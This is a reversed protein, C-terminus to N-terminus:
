AGTRNRAQWLREWELAHRVIAELSDHRPQWDLVRRLRAPDAIVSGLDGPRRPRDAVSFETESVRRVMELVERVSYGRGYGCNLCQNSGGAEMYELALRHVQALDSVHIFDRVGTGDPTPWDTGFVRMEDRLGLAAEVAAKILHTAEPTAQGSRGAPDAGAVNFYRLIFYSLGHAAAADAIMEETMWKSRGYPSAPGLPSDEDIPVGDAARYVAATSSFILASVGEAVMAEILALSAITNNGYYKLPLDVSEPVVTSGACHIVATVGHRRLLERMAAGDGIDVHEFVAPRPILARRGTALNDAVVVQRGSDILELAIHSGIYGAGGTILITM